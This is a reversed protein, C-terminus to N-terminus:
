TKSKQSCPMHFGAGGGPISGWSGASSPSTKGVPHGPFDRFVSIRTFETRIM